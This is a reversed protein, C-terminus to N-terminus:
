DKGLEDVVDEFRRIMRRIERSNLRELDKLVAERAAASDRDKLIEFYRLSPEKSRTTIVKGDRHESLRVRLDETHGVYYSGDKLILIYAYYRTDKTASSDWKDSREIRVLKTGVNRKCKLCVDYEADKYKDCVPCKDIDEDQFGEYHEACLFYGKRVKRNCNWYECTGM